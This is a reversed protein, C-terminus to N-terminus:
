RAFGNSSANSPWSTRQSVWRPLTHPWHCRGVRECRLLTNTDVAEERAPAAEGNGISEVTIRVREQERLPLPETPTLVGNAFIAETVRTM